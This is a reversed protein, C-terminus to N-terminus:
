PLFKVGVDITRIPSICLRVVYIEEVCNFAHIMGLSRDRGRTHVIVTLSEPCPPTMELPTVNVTLYYSFLM